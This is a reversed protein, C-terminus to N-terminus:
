KENLSSLMKAVKVFMRKGSYRNFREFSIENNQHMNRQEEDNALDFKLEKLVDMIYYLDNNVKELKIEQIIEEYTIEEKAIKEFVKPFVTKIYCTLAIAMQYNGYYETQGSSMNHVLSVNSLLHEIERYTLQKLTTLEELTNILVENKFTEENELMAKLTYKLYKEGHNDYYENERPLNFWLNVFKQLYQSANIDNGYRAKVSAELQNRNLVLLFAIGKVSFIHKIQEILELAFDPRCRDLEDIIFIIPNEEDNELAFSQLYEKFHELSSKDEKSNQLRDAIVTDIQESFLDSIENNSSDLVTGDVIGGTLAKVGIKLAGRSMAKIANTAKEKFEEQKNIDEDSIMEYLEASLAIFPDKQYDNAFADFYITKLKKERQFEVHGKWMKIFTSKGEGWPADLAVVVNENTNVFLRALREGFKERQFIDKESFGETESIELPPITLRM